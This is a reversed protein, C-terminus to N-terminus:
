VQCLHDCFKDMLCYSVSHPFYLFHQKFTNEESESLLYNKKLTEFCPILNKGAHINHYHNLIYYMYCHPMAHKVGHKNSFLKM